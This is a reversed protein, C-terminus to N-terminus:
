RRHLFSLPLFARMQAVEHAQACVQAQACAIALVCPIAKLSSLLALVYLEHFQLAECPQAEGSAEGHAEGRAWRVDVTKKHARTVWVQVLGRTWHDNERQNCALANVKRACAESYEGLEQQEEQGEHHFVLALSRDDFGKHFLRVDLVHCLSDHHQDEDGYGM